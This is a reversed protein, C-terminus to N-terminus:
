RSGVPKFHFTMRWGWAGSEDVRTVEGLNPQGRTAACLWGDPGCGVGSGVSLKVDWSTVEVLGDVVFLGPEGSDAGDICIGFVETTEHAVRMGRASMRVFTGARIKEEAVLSGKQWRAAPPEFLGQIKNKQIAAAVVQDVMTQVQKDSATKVDSEVRRAGALTLRRYTM